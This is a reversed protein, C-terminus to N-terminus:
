FYKFTGTFLFIGWRQLQQICHLLQLEHEILAPRCPVIPSPPFSPFHKLVHCVQFPKHLHTVASCLRWVASVAPSLSLRPPSTGAPCPLAPQLASPCCCLRRRGCTRLWGLATSHWSSGLSAGSRSGIAACLM